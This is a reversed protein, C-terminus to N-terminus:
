KYEKEAERAHKRAAELADRAETLCDTAKCVHRRVNQLTRVADELVTSPITDGVGPHDSMVISTNDSLTDIDDRTGDDAATDIRLGDDLQTDERPGSDAPARTRPKDVVLDDTVEGYLSNM